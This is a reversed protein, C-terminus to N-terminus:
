WASIADWAAQQRELDNESMLAKPGREGPHTLQHRAEHLLLRDAEIRQPSRIYQLRHLGKNPLRGIVPSAISPLRSVDHPILITRTFNVSFTIPQSLGAMQLDMKETIQIESANSSTPDVDRGIGMLLLTESDFQAIEIVVFANHLIPTEPPYAPFQVIDGPKLDKLWNDPSPNIAHTM